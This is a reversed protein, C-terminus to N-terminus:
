WQRRSGRSTCPSFMPLFFSCSVGLWAGGPWGAPSWLYGRSHRPRLVSELHNQLIGELGEDAALTRECERLGPDTLGGQVRSGKKPGRSRGSFVSGADMAQDGRAGVATGAGRGPTWPNSPLDLTMLLGRMGVGDHGPVGTNIGDAGGWPTWPGLAGFGFAGLCRPSPSIACLFGGFDKRRRSVSACVVADVGALWVRGAGRPCFNLLAGVKWGPLGAGGQVRAWAGHAAQHSFEALGPASPDSRKPPFALFLVTSPLDPFIFKWM